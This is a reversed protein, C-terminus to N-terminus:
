VLRLKSGCACSHRTDSLSELAAQVFGRLLSVKNALSLGCGSPFRVQAKALNATRTGTKSHCYAPQMASRPGLEVPVDFIEADQMCVELVARRLEIALGFSRMTGVVLFKMLQEAVFAVGIQFGLEVLPLM